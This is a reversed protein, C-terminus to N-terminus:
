VILVRSFKRLDILFCLAAHATDQPMGVVTNIVINDPVSDLFIKWSKFNHRLLYQVSQRPALPENTASTPTTGKVMNIPGYTASEVNGAIGSKAYIGPHMTRYQWFPDIDSSTCAVM